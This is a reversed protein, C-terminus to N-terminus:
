DQKSSLRCCATEGDFSMTVRSMLFPVVRVLLWRLRCLARCEELLSLRLERWGFEKGNFWLCIGDGVAFGCVLIAGSSDSSVFRIMSLPEDMYEVVLIFCGGVGFAADAGAILRDSPTRNSSPWFM